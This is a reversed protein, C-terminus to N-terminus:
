VPMTTLIYALGMGILFAITLSPYISSREPIPQILDRTRRQREIPKGIWNGMDGNLLRTKKYM